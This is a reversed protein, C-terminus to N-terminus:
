RDRQSWRTKKLSIDGLKLAKRFGSFKVGAIHLGFRNRQGAAGRGGGCRTAGNEHIPPKGAPGARYPDALDDVRPEICVMSRRFWRMGWQFDTSYKIEVHHRLGKGEGHPNIVGGNKLSESLMWIVSEFVGVCKAGRKAAEATLSPRIHATVPLISPRRPEDVVARWATMRAANRARRSFLVCPGERARGALCNRDVPVSRADHRIGACCAGGAQRARDRRRGAREDEQHQHAEVQAGEQGGDAGHQVEHAVVGAEAEPGGGHQGRQGEDQHAHDGAHADPQCPTEALFGGQGGRQQQERGAARRADPGAVACAQDDTGADRAGPHRDDLRQHRTEGLAPKGIPHWERHSEVRRRQDAAPCEARHGAGPEGRMAAPM